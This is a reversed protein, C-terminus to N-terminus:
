PANLRRRILESACRVEVTLAREPDLEITTAMLHAPGSRELFGIPVVSGTAAPDDGTEPSSSRREPGTGSRFLRFDWRDPQDGFGDEFQVSASDGAVVFAFRSLGLSLGRGRAKIYSEKLTWLEYFRDLRREEPTEELGATEARSFFRSALHLLQPRRVSVDEVDVGLERGYGVLCTVCGPKHSLNFDFQEPVGPTAIRPRGWENAAFRWDSPKVDWYVSLVSRLFVRSALFTGAADRALYRRYRVVEPADLFALGAEFGVEDLQPRPKWYWLHCAGRRLAEIVPHVGSGGGPGAHAGDGIASLFACGSGNRDIGM